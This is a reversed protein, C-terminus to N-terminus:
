VKMVHDVLSEPETLEMKKRIRFRANKVSDASIGLITATEPISLNLRILACLRLEQPTLSPHQDLLNEFFGHHVNDFYLKFKEWEEDKRFSYDIMSVFHRLESKDKRDSQRMAKNMELQLEKLSENKQILHLTYIMLQKNKSEIQEQLQQEKLKRYSEQQEFIKNQQNKIEQTREAVTNELNKKHQLLRWNYIRVAAVVVLFGSIIFLLTAWWKQHWPQVVVFSFSSPDSWLFGGHQQARVQFTYQGPKLASLLLANDGSPASWGSSDEGILRTQYQLKDAPFSLSLFTVALNANAKINTIKHIDFRQSVGNLQFATFIPAPTHANPFANQQFIALGRSTGVWLNNDFDFLLGQNTLNNSPLGSSQDYLLISQADYAILGSSTSIWLTGDESQHLARIPEDLPVKELNIRKLQNKRNNNEAFSYKLLGHSTALLYAGDKTTLIDNVQFNGKIPFDLPVSLNVFSDITPFYCFLYNQPDSGGVLLANANTKHITQAQALGGEQYIKMKLDRTMQILGYRKNGSIWINGNSDKIIKYIPNSRPLISEVRHLQKQLLDYYFVSGDLTGIWIRDSECLLATPALSIPDAQFAVKLDERNRKLFYFNRWTGVVMTSDPMLGLVEIPVDPQLLPVPKFFGNTLSVINESGAVWLGTHEDYSLGLIDNFPLSTIKKFVPKKQLPTKFLGGSWTGAYYEKNLIIGTSINSLDAIKSTSRVTPYALEVEFLGNEAGIWCTNGNIKVFSSANNIEVNGKCEIFIDKVSDYYYVEGSFACVWLHGADDEIFSFSRYLTYISGVNIDTGFRYKKLKGDVLRAISQNEGIWLQQKSDEYLSKPFFLKDESDVNAGAIIKRFYTTDAQSIIETVGFDHVVLLSKNKRKLFSKAFGGPLANKFFRRNRGDYQILGEDTALWVFGISDTVVAKILGKPLDNYFNYKGVQIQQATLPTQLFVNCLATFLLMKYWDIVTRKKLPLMAAADTGPALYSSPVSSRHMFVPVMLRFSGFKRM